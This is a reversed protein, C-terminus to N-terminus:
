KKKEPKHGGWLCNDCLRLWKESNSLPKFKKKCKVCIIIKNM